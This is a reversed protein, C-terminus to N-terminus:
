RRRRRGRRSAPKPTSAASWVQGGNWPRWSTLDVRMLDGDDSEEPLAAALGDGFQPLAEALQLLIPRMATGSLHMGYGKATVQGDLSAPAPGGLKLGIPRLTLQDAALEAAIEGDVFVSGDPLSLQAESMVVSGAAPAPGAMTFSGSVKGAATLQPAVRPSALRLAALLGQAPVNKLKAVGIAGQPDLVEPVEGTLVLGSRDPNAPWACRVDRLQHFLRSVGAKCVLDVALPQVPVFEAQRVGSLELRSELLNEGVSGAISAYLNMEGRFGADRGMLVWSVAGLPAGRWDATLDVPVDKLRTAKGLSGQVRLTGTDTAATDTRAPHGELRLRWQEPRPLWLAFDAETLSVPMKELGMKVNVRAGTAEIYPFRPANGAAEQATPAADMRSAQLLISEINWRGDALHVLNVSPDELTIRAFEVRRRWLSRVRIRARVSDARIVPESGFSPDEGVVFNQLTFSPLPLLNLTVSDMHVPRGLSASISGAIQRRFRNVSVLPPLVGVGLLVMLFCAAILVRKRDPARFPRPESDRPDFDSQTDFDKQALTGADEVLPRHEETWPDAQGM